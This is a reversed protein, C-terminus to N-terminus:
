RLSLFHRMLSRNWNGVYRNTQNAAGQCRVNQRAQGTERCRRNLGRTIPRDGAGRYLLAAPKRQYPYRTRTAPVRPSFVISRQERDTTQLPSLRYDPPAAEATYTYILTYGLKPPETYFLQRTGSYGPVWPVFVAIGRTPGRRNRNRRNRTGAM